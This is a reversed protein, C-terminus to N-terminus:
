AQGGQRGFASLGCVMFTRQKEINLVHDVGYLSACLLRDIYDSESMDLEHCKRRLAEKTDETIRAEAKATRKGGMPSRSFMAADQDIM